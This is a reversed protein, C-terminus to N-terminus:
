LGHARIIAKAEDTGLFDLFSRVADPHPADPTVAAMIEIPAYKDEKARAWGGISDQVALAHTGNIFGMDVEGAVVYSAVQPVTAVMVLKDKLREYLGTNKLYQM